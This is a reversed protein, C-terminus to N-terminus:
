REAGKLENVASEVRQWQDTPIDDPPLHKPGAYFAVINAQLDPTVLDFKRAALKEVLRAYTRDALKYEAPRTPKGTDFDLDALVLRDGQRRLRVLQAKYADVTKNVSEIYLDETAPSPVTIDVTKLPGVKPMVKVVLALVRAGFRPKQYETGWEKEYQTRSLRYLFKQQDFNHDERVLEAHKTLLAVRTMEPIITSVSRRYSGISLDPNSLIDKLELGYTERFAQELLPKSPQFGIFNHYSDSTFRNKAAQVVDFGFETRIHARHNDQYTVSDGFKKRLKPYEIAVARNVSPHGEVDSVYHALAGLAFAYGDLDNADRLLAVVFDGSRVYHVIDSFQKNGFPYYGLDQIVCGGYAYAHAEKLEEDSAEPFRHRLLPQIQDAWVLDVVEEHTLVSYGNM